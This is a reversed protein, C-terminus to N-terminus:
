GWWRDREGFNIPGDMAKVGKTTLWACATDFLVNAASQDDICDFFGIGGVPVKDGKNSYKKNVFAAIRGIYSGDDHRLLWRVVEGYRFAKNVKPDFVSEI